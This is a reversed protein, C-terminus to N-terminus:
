CACGCVGCGAICRARGGPTLVACIGGCGGGGCGVGVGIGVGDAPCAALEVEDSGCCGSAMACADATACAEAAHMLPTGAPLAGGGCCIGVALPKGMDTRSSTMWCCGFRFVRIWSITERLSKLSACFIAAIWCITRSAFLQSRVYGTDTRAHPLPPRPWARRRGYRAGLCRSGSSRM